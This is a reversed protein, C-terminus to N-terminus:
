PKEALITMRRCGLVYPTKDYSGYVELIRFGADLLIRKLEPYSYYRISAIYDRKEIADGVVHLYTDFRDTLVDFERRLLYYRDKKKFWKRLQRDFGMLLSEKSALDILFRGGSKLAKFVGKIVEINEADDFYGFSHNFNLVFDFKQEFPIKRMDGKVFEADLQEKKAKTKCYYFLGDNYELGTVKYGLRTMAYSLRGAGCALDLVEAGPPCSLFSKVFLIHQVTEADDPEELEFYNDDFYEDYWAM